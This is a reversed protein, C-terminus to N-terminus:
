TASWASCSASSTRSRRTVWAAPLTTPSRRSTSASSSARARTSWATSGCTGSPTSPTSGGRLYARSALVALDELPVRVGECESTARGALFVEFPAVVEGGGFAPRAVGGSLLVKDVNHHLLRGFRELYFRCLARSFEEALADCLTDPHGLGKREVIEVECAGAGPGELESLCLEM